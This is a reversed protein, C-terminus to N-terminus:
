GAKGSTLWGAQFAAAGKHAQADPPQGWDKFRIVGAVGDFERIIEVPLAHGAASIYVTQTIKVGSIKANEVVPVVSVGHVRTQAGVSRTGGPLDLMGAVGGMTMLAAQDLFTSSTASASIWHGAETKAYKAKFGLDEVLGYETGRFYIRNNLTFSVSGSKALHLTDTMTGDSVGAHVAETVSETGVREAYSWRVGRQGEVAVLALALEDQASPLTTTTPPVTTTTVPTTTTTTSFTTTTPGGPLTTTSSPVTSTSTTTTDATATGPDGSAIVGVAVGVMAATAGAMLKISGM